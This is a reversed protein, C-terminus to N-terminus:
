GNISESPAPLLRSHKSATRLHVRGAAPQSDRAAGSLSRTLYNRRLGSQSLCRGLREDGSHQKRQQNLSIQARMPEGIDDATLTGM